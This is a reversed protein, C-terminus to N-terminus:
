KVEHHLADLTTELARAIRTAVRVGPWREGAEVREYEATPLAARKAVQATTLDLAIRRARLTSTFMRLDQGHPSQSPPDNTQDTSVVERPWVQDIAWAATLGAGAGVVGYAADYILSMCFDRFTHVITYDYVTEFKGVSVLRCNTEFRIGLVGPEHDCVTTLKPVVLRPASKATALAFFAVMLVKGAGDQAAKWTKKSSRKAVFAVAFSGGVSVLVGLWQANLVRVVTLLAEDLWGDTEM